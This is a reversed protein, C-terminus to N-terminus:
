QDDVIASRYAALAATNTEVDLTNQLEGQFAQLLDQELSQTLQAGSIISLTDLDEPTPRNLADLQVVFKEGPLTGEAIAVEGVEDLSFATQLVTRPLTQDFATRRLGIEPRVVASGYLEAQEELTSVGSELTSRVADAVTQLADAERTAMLRELVDERVEEFEPVRSPAISKVSVVYINDAGDLRDSVINEPLEFAAAIGDRAEFLATVPTGDADFGRRDVPPLLDVAVGLDSGIEDISLGQGILDDFRAFANYYETEAREAALEDLIEERVEDLTKPQGPEVGVVEGVLWGSPTEFPGVVSGEQASPSFVATRFEESAVDEETGSRTEFLAALEPDITGGGALTGFVTLATQEDPFVAEIFTREEPTALRRLKTAEYYAEIEEESFGERNVFDESSVSLLSIERREPITFAAQREEFFAQIDEESPDEAEPLSGERLPVWAILREEGNYIAQLRALDNPVAVAGDIADELYSITLDDKLGGEYEAQTFSNDALIRRYTQLDFAGTVPNNFVENERVNNALAQASSDAGIDRAFGLMLLRSSQQAIERDLLGLEVAQQRTMTRSAEDQQRLIRLTREFSRDLEQQSISREGVKIIGSGFNGSFINETGWVAMGLIILGLLITGVFKNSVLSRFFEM